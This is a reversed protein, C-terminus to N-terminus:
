SCTGVLLPNNDDSVVPLEVNDFPDLKFNATPNKESSAPDGIDLEEINLASDKIVAASVTGEIKGTLPVEFAICPSSLGDESVAPPVVTLVSGCAVVPVVKGDSFSTVGSDVPLPSLVGVFPVIEEKEGCPACSVPLECFGSVVVLVATCVAFAADGDPTRTVTFSTGLQSVSKEDKPRPESALASVNCSEPMPPGAEVRLAIREVAEAIPEIREEAGAVFTGIVFAATTFAENGVITCGLTSVNTVAGADPTGHCPSGAPIGLVITGTTEAGLDPLGVGDSREVAIWVCTAFVSAPEEKTIRALTINATPCDRSQM